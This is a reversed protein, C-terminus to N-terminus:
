YFDDSLDRFEKNLTKILWVKKSRRWKKLQKERSITAYVDACDEFYVLKTLNYRSTFGPVLKNKHEYVRRVLNNTMGVYFVTHHKNTMIYVYFITM